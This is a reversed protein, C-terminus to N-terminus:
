LDMVRLINVLTVRVVILSVRQVRFSVLHVNNVRSKNPETKIIAPLVTSVSRSGLSMLLRAKPVNSVLYLQNVIVLDVRLVDMVRRSVRLVPMPVLLVPSVNLVVWTMKMHERFVPLATLRHKQMLLDAWPVSNVSPKVKLIRLAEVHVILVTQFGQSIVM